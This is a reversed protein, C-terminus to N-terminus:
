NYVSAAQPCTNLWHQTDNVQTTDHDQIATHHIADVDLRMAHGTNPGVIGDVRLTRKLSQYTKVGSETGSGFISDESGGISIHFYSHVVHQACWVPVGRDGFDVDALAPSISLGVAAVTTAAVIGIRVSPKM